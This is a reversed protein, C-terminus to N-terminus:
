NWEDAKCLKSALKFCSFKVWIYYKQPKRINVFDFLCKTVVIKFLRNIMLDKTVIASFSKMTGAIYFLSEFMGYNSTKVAM